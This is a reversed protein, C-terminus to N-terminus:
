RGTSPRRRGNGIKRTAGRGPSWRSEQAAADADRAAAGAADAHGAAPNPAAPGGRSGARTGPGQGRGGQVRGGQGGANGSGGSGSGRAPTGKLSARSGPTWTSVLRDPDPPPTTPRGISPSAIRQRGLMEILWNNRVTRGGVRRVANALGHDDTVVLLGAAEEAFDREALRIILDDATSRGSYRIEVGAAIRRSVLGHEPSGDLVVVVAVGAPVMARLRGILAAAPLPDASRRLAHLVNTGDVVLRDVGELVHRDDPM